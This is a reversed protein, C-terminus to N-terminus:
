NKRYKNLLRTRKMHEKRLEKTVFPQDNGRVYKMKLPASQECIELVLDNFDDHSMLDLDIGALSFNLDNLIKQPSYKKYNRYIVKKPPKKKYTTKLVTVVLHHFDSLGTEITSSNQFSNVRNTLILDICSPNTKSKFCTPKKILSKLGYLSSFDEMAGESMECNFDGLIIVNDYASYYHGLNKGLSQLFSSIQSKQPNYIGAILWKKKAVTVECFICEINSEILKLPKATIGSRFYLLLGGGDRTRDLREPTGFGNLRLQAISFSPDIKTESILLIDIKDHIMIM